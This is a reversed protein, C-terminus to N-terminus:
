RKRLDVSLRTPATLTVTATMRQEGLDPNRFVVEHSGLSVPLNGIPTDGVKQGDVFVEAWPIANLALTGKPFELNVPTNAGPNVQVTRTIRYGLAQNVLELQHAGAPLTVRGSQSSGLLRGNELIDVASPATVTLFGTAPPPPALDTVLSATAGPEITVARTTSGLPSTLLVTHRGPTLDSITLPTVGRRVGAVTVTAGPPETRVDLHGLPAGLPAIPTSEAVPEPESPTTNVPPAVEAPPPTTAVEPSADFFRNAAAWGAGSVVTLLAVAAAMRRWNSTPSTSLMLSLYRAPVDPTPADGTQHEDARVEPALVRPPAPKPLAAPKAAPAAQAAPAPKAAAPAPLIPTAPAKPEAKEPTTATPKAQAPVPAAAVKANHTSPTPAAAPKSAPQAPPEQCLALFAELDSPAITYGSEVIAKDLASNAEVASAFSNRADLQLARALWARLGAPTPKRDTVASTAWGSEALEAIRAPYEDDNLPRGLIVSLAVVGVQTIDARQDLQTTAGSPPCAIRLEKWYRDLSYRLRLLAPGLVHEVVIVRANSTIVIREAALAGHSADPAHQHLSCVTAVLQKILCWKASGDMGLGNRDAANLLDSLRVGPTPESALVLTAAPDNLREVTRVRAFATGRFSALRAAQERLSSEFSDVVSLDRRFCLIELKDIGSADAMRRREGLGDRFAAPRLASPRAPTQNM